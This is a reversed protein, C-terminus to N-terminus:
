ICLVNVGRFPLRKSAGVTALPISGVNTRGLVCSEIGEVIHGLGRPSTVVGTSGKNTVVM